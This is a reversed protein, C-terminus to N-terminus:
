ALFGLVRDAPVDALVIAGMTRCFFQLIRADNRMGQGMAQKLDLYLVVAETLGINNM